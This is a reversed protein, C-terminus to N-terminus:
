VMVPEAAVPAEELQLADNSPPNFVITPDHQLEIGGATYDLNTSFAWDQYLELVSCIVVINGEGDPPIPSGGFAAAPTVLSNLSDIGSGRVFTLTFDADNSTPLLRLRTGSGSGTVLVTNADSSTYQLSSGNGSVILSVTITATLM